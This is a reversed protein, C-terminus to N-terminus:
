DRLYIQGHAIYAWVATPNIEVMKSSTSVRGKM